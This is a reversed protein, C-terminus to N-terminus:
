TLIGSIGLAGPGAHTGLAPGAQTIRIRERPVLQAAALLDALAEADARSTTYLVGLEAFQGRDRAIEVLRGPVRKSTRVQEVPLVDGNRVEIIPKVSLMTGLFARVRGIRGGKEMYRLTDVGFILFAKPKFQEVLAVLEDMSAGARAATAAALAIEAYASITTGSEVCTIQRDELLRAAQQAAGYTSSLKEAVSISFVADGNDTLQRFAEEYLGVPPAATQPFETGGTLRAYFADHSLETDKFTERGFQVLIPVVSIGANAAEEAPLDATSDVVVHIM